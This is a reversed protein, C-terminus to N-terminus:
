APDAGPRFNLANIGPICFCNCCYGKHLHTQIQGATLSFISIHFTSLLCWFNQDSFYLVHTLIIFVLLIFNCRYDVYEGVSLLQIFEDWNLHLWIIYLMDTHMESLFSNRDTWCTIMSIIFLHTTLIWLFFM